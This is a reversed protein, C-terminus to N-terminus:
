CRCLCRSHLCRSDGVLISSLPSGSCLEAPDRPSRVERGWKRENLTAPVNSDRAYTAEVRSVPMFDALKPLTEPRIGEFCNQGLYTEVAAVRSDLQELVGRDHTSLKMEHVEAAVRRRAALLARKLLALDSADLGGAASNSLKSEVVSMRRAADEAVPPLYAFARQLPVLITARFYEKLESVHRELPLRMAGSFSTVLM